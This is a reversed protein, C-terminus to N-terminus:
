KWVKATRTRAEGSAGCCFVQTARIARRWLGVEREAACAFRVTPREAHGVDLQYVTVGRTKPKSPAPVPPRALSM